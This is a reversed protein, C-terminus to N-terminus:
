PLAGGVLLWMSRDTPSGTVLENVDSAFSDAERMGFFVLGLGGIIMAAALALKLNM